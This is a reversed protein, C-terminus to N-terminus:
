MYNKFKLVVLTGREKQSSLSIEIEMADCLRKVIDLGIGYGSKHEKYKREFVAEPQEIGIGTDEIYLSSKKAYIKVIGDKKNYKCSNSVINTLIQKLADKNVKEELYSHEVIFRIDECIGKQTNVVDEVIEFVNENQIVFTDEQLLITLNHHLEGIENASTKIRTLAKSEEITRELIKTNLLISTVPTNLDHILDKSFKDLKNIAEQMPRLARWSLLYSISAFLLLLVAQMLIIKIKIDFLLKYFTDKNKRVRYYGSDWSYPIFAEFYNERITFNNINFAPIQTYVVTHTIGDTHAEHRNMKIKRIHEIMSFHEKKILIKEQETFYFYGAALILIAVSGFYISFFKWFATKEYELM